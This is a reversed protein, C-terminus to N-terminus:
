GRRHRTGQGQREGRRTAALGEQKAKKEENQDNPHILFTFPELLRDIGQAAVYFLAFANANDALNLAAPLGGNGERWWTIGVAAALLALAIAYFSTRPTEPTTSRAAITTSAPASLAVREEVQRVRAVLGGSGRVLRDLEAAIAANDEEAPPAAVYAPPEIRVVAM